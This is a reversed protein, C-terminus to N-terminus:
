LRTIANKRMITNPINWEHNAMGYSKQFLIHGDRAVLITGSFDGNRVYARAQEDFKRAPTQALASVVVALAFIVLRLARCRIRASTKLTM